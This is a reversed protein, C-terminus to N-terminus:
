INRTNKNKNEIYSLPEFSWVGVTSPPRGISFLSMCGVYDSSSVCLSGTM